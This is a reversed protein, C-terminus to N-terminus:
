SSKRRRAIGVLGLLGSGFLWVSAPVPVPAGVWVSTLVNCGETAGADGTCDVGDVPGLPNQDSFDAIHLAFLFSGNAGAISDAVYDLPSDSVGNDLGLNISFVLPDQRNPGQNGTKNVTVDFMGMGDQNLSDSLVTAGWNDPLLPSVPGDIDAAVLGTAAGDPDLNFGFSQIGGGTNLKDDWYSSLAVTFNVLGATGEDDITVTAYPTGDNPIDNTVSWPDGSIHGTANNSYDLVYTVSAAQVSGAGLMGSSLLAVLALRKKINAM